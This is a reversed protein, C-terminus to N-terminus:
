YLHAQFLQRSYWTKQRIFDQRADIKFFFFHAMFLFNYQVPSYAANQPPFKNNFFGPSVVSMENTHAIVVSCCARASRGCLELRLREKSVPLATLCAQQRLFDGLTFRRLHTNYHSCLAGTKVSCSEVIKYDLRCLHRASESFCTTPGWSLAATHESFFNSSM